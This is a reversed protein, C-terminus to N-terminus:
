SEGTPQQLEEEKGASEILRPVIAPWGVGVALCASRGIEFVEAWAGLLAALGAGIGWLTVVFLSPLLGAYGLDLISRGRIKFLILDLAIVLTGVVAAGVVFVPIAQGEYGSPISGTEGFLLLFLAESFNM